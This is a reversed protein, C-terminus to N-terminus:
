NRKITLQKVAEQLNNILAQVTQVDLSEHISQREKKIVFGIRKNYPTISIDFITERGFPDIFKIM